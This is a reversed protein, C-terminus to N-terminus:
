VLRVLIYMWALSHKGEHLHVTQLDGHQCNLELGNSCMPRLSDGKGRPWHARLSKCVPYYVVAEVVFGNTPRHIPEMGISKQKHGKFNLNLRTINQKGQNRRKESILM